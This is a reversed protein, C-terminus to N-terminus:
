PKPLFVEHPAGEDRLRRINEINIELVLNTKQRFVVFLLDRKRVLHILAFVLETLTEFPCEALADVDFEDTHPLHMKLPPIM